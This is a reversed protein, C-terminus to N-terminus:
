NEDGLAINSVFRVFRRSYNLANQASVNVDNSKGTFTIKYKREVM